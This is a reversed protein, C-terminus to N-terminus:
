ILKYYFYHLNTVYLNTVNLKVYFQVPLVFQLVGIQVYLSRWLFDKDSFFPGGQDGPIRSYMSDTSLLSFFLGRYVGSVHPVPLIM